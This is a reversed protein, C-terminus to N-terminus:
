QRNLATTRSETYGNSTVTLRAFYVGRAIDPADWATRYNGGHRYTNVLSHVHRGLADYVDLTVVGGQAVTYELTVNDSFPNPYAPSLSVSKPPPAVDTAAVPLPSLDMAYMSRGHTGAVLRLTEGDYFVKMDYVSVLPMGNSLPTWSQGGDVSMYAGLDTGVFLRNTNTPDVAFANVPADVLNKSIDEWTTGLDRTRFVRAEHDFWKRGSFTAYATHADVPDAIVRTVWRRPLTASVETWTKGYDASVWVNSDDTGAYIIDSDVPSVAITSISGLLDDNPLGSVLPESIESWSEAGDNTRHVRDTGYYLVHNNAPDMVVPTSWSTPLNRPIGNTALRTREDDDGLNTIKFLAGWQYEAYVTTPNVPDVIVYFGDGGLIREWADPGSSMLTGNDQTGGFYRDPNTPHLGIEYFQTNAMPSPQGWSLSRGRRKNTTIGGDNGVIIHEPDNPHFDLAHYDVHTGADHTWTNGGNLSRMFRVDMAYVIEPDDPACRIQGFYWSFTSSGHRISSRPDTREWNQGGDNTRYLGYYDGFLGDKTTYLAYMTDPFDRCIAIGLRGLKDDDPLGNAAGLRQWTTGGDDSRYIGTTPGVVRYDRITRVRFWAAAFLVNPNDPRMVLDIVGTHDDVFLVQDWTEGGDLSRFVGRDPGTKFYSGIAAVFVRKSDNPDVLIRGIQSTGELGSEKWTQGGDKSKFVGFGRFNNHGGNAEGTGVYITSPNSPDVAIDGISLTPQDDFVPYWTGGTDESKYVGGAASGAYVISPNLPDFEIDSIRGPINTPGVSYWSDGGNKYAEAWSDAADLM